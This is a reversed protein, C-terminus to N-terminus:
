TVVLRKGKRKDENSLEIKLLRVLAALNGNVELRIDQNREALVEALAEKMTSLPSVVETEQKNDGLIAAFEGANPPVVTGSALRPLSVHGLNFGFHMGGALPVWSPVDFSLANLCDIIFNIANEAITIVGNFIGKFIDKVGNWAMEWDGTFVGTLFTIIGSLATLISSVVSSVTQLFGNFATGIALLVSSVTPGMTKIIWAILPTLYNNWLTGLLTLVQGFVVFLQDVIPLVYTNWTETLMTAIAMITPALNTNWFTLLAQIITNLGTVINQFFPQLYVTWYNMFSSFVQNALSSLLTFPVTIIDIFSLLAAQIAPANNTILTEIGSFIAGLGLSFATALLMGSNVFTEIFESVFNQGAESGVVSFISAISTVIGAISSASVSLGDFTNILATKIIGSNRQLYKAIGGVWTQATTIAISTLSGILAGLMYIFSEGFNGISGVVAPDTFIGILEQRIIKLNSLINDFQSKWTDGLGDIFGQKFINAIKKLIKAIDNFLKKINNALKESVPLDQFAGADGAGGGGGSSSQLNLQNIEDFSALAKEAGKASGATGDLAAAYDKQQKVAVKYTSKGTLASFVMSIYQLLTALANCITNIVPVVISILPSFAALFSNKLYGLSSMIQSLNSNVDPCVKAMDQMGKTFTSMLSFLASMVFMSMIMRTFYKISNSSKKVANPVQKGYAKTIKKASNDATKGIQSFEADLASFNVASSNTEHMMADLSAKAKNLDYSLNKYSQSTKKAGTANMRDMKAQLEDVKKKTKDIEIREALWEQNQSLNTKAQELAQEYIKVQNTAKAISDDIGAYNGEAKMSHLEALKARMQELDASISKIAYEEDKINEKFFSQPKQASYKLEIETDKKNLKLANKLSSKVKNAIKDIGSLEKDIQKKGQKVGSTDVKTDFKISGDSM